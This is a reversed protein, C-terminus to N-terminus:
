EATQGSEDEKPKAHSQKRMQAIEKLADDAAKTHGRDNYVRYLSELFKIKEEAKQQPPIKVLELVRKGELLNQIAGKSNEIIQYNHAIFFYAKHKPIFRESRAAELYFTNAIQIMSSITKQMALVSNNALPTINARNDRNFRAIFGSLKQNNQVKQSEERKGSQVNFYFDIMSQFIGAKRFAVEGMKQQYLPRSKVRMIKEYEAMQVLAEYYRSGRLYLKIITERSALDNPDKKINLMNLMQRHVERETAATEYHQPGLIKYVAVIVGQASISLAKPAKQVAISLADISQFLLFQQREGDNEEKAAADLFLRGLAEYIKDAQENNYYFGNFKPLLKQLDKPSPGSALSSAMQELSVKPKRSFLRKRRKAELELVQPVIPKSRADFAFAVPRMKPKAASGAPAASSEAM